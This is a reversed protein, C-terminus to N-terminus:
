GQKITNDTNILEYCEVGQIDGEEDVVEVHYEYRKKNITAKLIKSEKVDQQKLFRFVDWTPHSPVLTIQKKLIM